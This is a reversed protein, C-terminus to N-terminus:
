FASTTTVRILVEISSETIGQVLYSNQLQHLEKSIVMKYLRTRAPTSGSFMVTHDPHINLFVGISRIVTALIKNRDGNDNITLVDLVGNPLPNGMSLTVLYPDTTKFYVISKVINIPGKSVFDFRHAEKLVTFEYSSENM